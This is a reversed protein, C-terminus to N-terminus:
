FQEWITKYRTQQWRAFTCTFWSSTKGAASVRQDSRIDSDAAADIDNHISRGPHGELRQDQAHVPQSNNNMSFASELKEICLNM